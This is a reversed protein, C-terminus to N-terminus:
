DEMRIKEMMLYKRFKNVLEAMEIDKSAISKLDQDSANVVPKLKGLNMKMQEITALVQEKEQSSVIEGEMKHELNAVFKEVYPIMDWPNNPTNWVFEINCKRCRYKNSKWGELSKDTGILKLNTNKSCKPCVAHDRILEKLKEREQQVIERNKAHIHIQEILKDGTHIHPTYDETLKHEQELAKVKKKFANHLRILEREETTLNQTM